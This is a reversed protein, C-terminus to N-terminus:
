VLTVAEPDFDVGCAVVVGGLVTFGGDSSTGDKPM